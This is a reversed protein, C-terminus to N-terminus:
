TAAAEGIILEPAVNTYNAVDGMIEAGHAAMAANFADQSTVMAWGMAEYNGSTVTAAGWGQCDDGLANALMPMHTSTYYDMNFSSEDTKPYLITVVIMALTQCPHSEGDLPEPRFQEPKAGDGSPRGSM